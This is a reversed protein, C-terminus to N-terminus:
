FSVKNIYQSIDVGLTKALDQDNAASIKVISGDATRVDMMHGGSKLDPVQFRYCNIINIKYKGFVKCSYIVFINTRNM